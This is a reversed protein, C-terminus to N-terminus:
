SFRLSGITLFRSIFSILLISSFIPTLEASLPLPQVSPQVPTQISQRLQNIKEEHLQQNQQQQFYLEQIKREYELKQRETEQQLELMRM